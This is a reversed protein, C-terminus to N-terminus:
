DINSVGLFSKVSAIPVGNITKIEAIPVGFVTKISTVASPTLDYVFPAGNYWSSLAGYDDLVVPQGNIWYTMSGDM